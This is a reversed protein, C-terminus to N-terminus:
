YRQSTMALMADVLNASGASPDEGQSDDLM